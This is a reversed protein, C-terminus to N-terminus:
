SKLIKCKRNREAMIAEIEDFLENAEDTKETEIKDALLAIKNSVKQELLALSPHSMPDSYRILESLSSLRTQHAPERVRDQLSVVDNELLKIFLIREKTRESISEVTNRAMVASLTLILHLALLVIQVVNAIRLSAVPVLMFGAGVVIQVLLYIFSIVTLPFGFFVDHVTTNRKYISLFVIVQVLFAWVTFLYASWFIPSRNASFTFVIINYVAFIIGGVIAILFKNNKM